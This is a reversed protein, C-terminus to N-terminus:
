VPVFRNNPGCRCDTNDRRWRFFQHNIVNSDTRPVVNPEVLYHIPWPFVATQSQCSCFRRDPSMTGNAKTAATQEVLAVSLSFANILTAHLM